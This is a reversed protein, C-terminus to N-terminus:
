HVGVQRKLGALGLAGLMQYAPLPSGGTPPSMDMLSATKGARTDGFLHAAAGAPALVAYPGLFVLVCVNLRLLLRARQEATSAM